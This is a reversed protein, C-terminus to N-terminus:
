GNSKPTYTNKSQSAGLSFVYNDVKTINHAKLKKSEFEDFNTPKDNPTVTRKINM